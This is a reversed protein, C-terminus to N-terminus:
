HQGTVVKQLDINDVIVIIESIINIKSIGRSVPTLGAQKYICVVDHLLVVVGCAEWHSYKIACYWLLVIGCYCLVVIGSYGLVVIGCSSAM